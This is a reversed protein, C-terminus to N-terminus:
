MLQFPVYVLPSIQALPMEVKSEIHFSQISERSDQQINLLETRRIGRAVPQMRKIATLLTEESEKMIDMTGKLLNDDLPDM